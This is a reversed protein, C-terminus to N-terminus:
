EPRPRAVWLSSLARLRHFYEAIALFCRAAQRTTLIQHLRHLTQHRLNDAQRIFGELTSLKNIALAMQPMYTNINPPLTLSDSAITESLSATLTDLGQSLGEEAEQTSQQVGCITMLQQESLPEVQSMIIKIVESPRFGGMWMFCREAPTKWMGSVLHFVDSKAIMSKLNIVQDYHALCNDVFLRLENEPLHEHVANRLEVTLRHHEELWRAYEMDFMATEHSINSMPAPVGGQDGLSANGILFGQTRARQIEQELQSLRVRSSELQQVYAKKRLRSKRAAERNQALRRLTKPDPTKPGEQESSSTPGKRNGERKVAKGSAANTKPNSLEMSPESSRKSASTSPSVLGTSNPKSTTPSPEVHMPQSPFINLTPPRMGYNQKLDHASHDQGDLYLFLAQDLEGLDYTSSDNSINFSGPIVSSSSPHMMGFSIQNNQHHHHLLQNQHHLEMKKNSSSSKNSDM